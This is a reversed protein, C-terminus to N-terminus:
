RRSRAAQAGEGEAGRRARKLTDEVSRRRRGEEASIRDAAAQRKTAAIVELRKEVKSRGGLRPYLAAVVVGGISFAALLAVAVQVMLPSFM